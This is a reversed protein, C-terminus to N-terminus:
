HKVEPFLVQELVVRNENALKQLRGVRSQLTQRHKDYSELVSQAAPHLQELAQLSLNVVGLQKTIAEVKPDYNIGLPVVGNLASFIVGHLRMSLCLHAQSFVRDSSEFDVQPLLKLDPIHSQLDRGIEIDGPGLPIFDVYCDECCLQEVVQIWAAKHDLWNDYPRINILVRPQSPLQKPKWPLKAWQFVPDATVAEQPVDVGLGELFQASAQDRVTFGACRQFIRKIWRGYSKTSVPGLGQGYIVVPVNRILALEALGLYYPITRKSTVDQLLSGGGSVFCRARGLMQWIEGFDSRPVSQVGHCQRTSTPNSSLVAINQRPIGISVLDECLVALIAEDGLNGFGYYGSVVIVSFCGRGVLYLRYVLWGIFYGFVLGYVTRVLSLVIPTHVHTFTNIMSLQGIVAM